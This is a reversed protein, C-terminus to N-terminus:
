VVSKRDRDTKSKAGFLAPNKGYGTLKMGGSYKFEMKHICCISHDGALGDTYDIVDGLDFIPDLLGSSNFPVYVFNQLASLIAMAMRSTTEDTGYQMLPNSGINMTLGNDPEVNYYRTAEKQMDVVSLGTFYTTFDSFSGGIQRSYIDIEVDPQDHWTRIELKGQRNITAYGCCTVCVWSILDRWTEIDNEPYLALQETGNPMQAMQAATNALQVGCEYCALYAIEFLTGATTSANMPKDLKSMADYAKIETGQRTHNAEDVIYPKIPIYEWTDNEPDVLLGIEITIIRGHWTGRPITSGFTPMFTIGMQGVFVGGLKIDASNVCKESYSFSGSIVDNETFPVNDITGRIKRTVVIPTESIKDLYAQSANYM